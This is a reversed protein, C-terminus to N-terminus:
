GFTGGPQCAQLVSCSRCIRPNYPPSGRAPIALDRRALKITEIVRAVNAQVDVTERRRERVVYIAARDVPRGTMEALCLAQAVVQVMTPWLDGAGRGRKHEVPILEGTSAEEVSDAVGYIRHTHSTLEVRHHIRSGRRSDTIGSDVREHAEDGEVTMHNDLWVGDALLQAQHPCYAYHQLASLRLWGGDDVM